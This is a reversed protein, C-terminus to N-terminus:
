LKEDRPTERFAEPKDPEPPFRIRFV